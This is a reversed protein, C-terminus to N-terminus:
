NFRGESDGDSLNTTATEKVGDSNNAVKDLGSYPFEYEVDRDMNRVANKLFEQKSM